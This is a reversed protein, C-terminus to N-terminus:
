YHLLPDVGAAQVDPNAALYKSDSFLLSPDRGEKWGFMEFHQLPDLGSAKVDPNQALYYTTDFWASPNAGAKWGTTHYWTLPDTGTDGYNPSHFVIYSPQLTQDIGPSAQVVGPVWVVPGQATAATGFDAAVYVRTYADQNAATLVESLPDELDGNQDLQTLVGNHEITPIPAHTLVDDDLFDPIAREGSGPGGGIYFTKNDTLNQFDTTFGRYKPAPPKNLGHGQIGLEQLAENGQLTREMQLYTDATFQKAPDIGDTAQDIRMAADIADYERQIDERFYQLQTSSLASAATNDLLAEANGEMRQLPTLTAAQGALMAAEDAKWEAALNGTHYLGNADATWTHATIGTLIAPIVTGDLTTVGAPVPTLTPTPATM